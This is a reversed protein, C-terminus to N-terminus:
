PPLAPGTPPRGEAPLLAPRRRPRNEASFPLLARARASRPLLFDHRVANVFSEIRSKATEEACVGPQFAKVAAAGPRFPRGPEGRASIEDPRVNRVVPHHAEILGVSSDAHEALRRTIRVAVGDVPLAAQDGALVAIASDGPGFMVARDGD